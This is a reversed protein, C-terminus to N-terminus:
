RGLAGLAELEDMHEMVMEKNAQPVKAAFEKAQELEEMAEKDESSGGGMQEAMAVAVDIGLAASAAMVKYMVGGFKDWNTGAKKLAAEVGEVKQMGGIVRGLAAAISENETDEPAYGAKELAESVAPLAKVFEGLEAETLPAFAIAMVATESGTPQAPTEATETGGCFIGTVLAFVALLKLGKM